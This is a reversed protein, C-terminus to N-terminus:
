AATLKLGQRAREEEDYPWRGRRLSVWREQPKGDIHGGLSPDVM